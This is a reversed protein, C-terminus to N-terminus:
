GTHRVSAKPRVRPPSVKIQLNPIEHEDLEDGITDQIYQICQESDMNQEVCEYFCRLVSSSTEAQLNRDQDMGM